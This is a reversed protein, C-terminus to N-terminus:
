VDVDARPRIFLYRSGAALYVMGLVLFTTHLEFKVDKLAGGGYAVLGGGICACLNMVGYGTARFRPNVIQCLIPMWNADAFSKGIGYLTIGIVTASLLNTAASFCICPGALCVGIFPVLIRARRNSRSWQDAWYGGILIGVLAGAQNPVSAWTGAPGAELGFSETLYTPLWTLIPWNVMSFLTFITLLVLFSPQRLLALMAGVLDGSGGQGRDVRVSEAPRKLDRLVFVLLVAYVVGIGGFLAFASRWGYHQAIWGGASGGVASGVYVGSVHIGTALSRTSGRHYDAILALGAPLYCAESIGMLARAILLTYYDRALITLGTVLSWVLLSAVIVKTRGIRDALYGALPSLGAYVFLFVAMLMGFQGDTMPISERVSERMSALMLRDLYNLMAVFWLMAVVLWARPPLTERDSVSTTQVASEQDM